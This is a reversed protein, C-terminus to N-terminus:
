KSFIYADNRTRSLAVYQLQRLNEEDRCKDIDSMDIYVNNFTSGQSRHVTIAYGRDFTKKRILRNGVYLNVPSTFKNIISYYDKWLRGKSRGKAQVAKVRINEIYIALKIFDEKPINPDLIQVNAVKKSGTDFLMLNYAPYINDALYICTSKPDELIIYDMANWFKYDNFELNEFCTLIEGKHFVNNDGFIKEAIYNNYKDVRANTYALIKAELIDENKISNIIGEKCKGFFEKFNSIHILSGKKAINTNWKTVVNKRLEQLIPVLASEDSQRYIKTLNFNDKLKYVLSLQDSSVPKLQCKDSVFLIKAAYMACTKLLLKYLDDSIMSAEDCIVLGKYPISDSPVGMNFELEKFDLNLIDLKPSLSLLSHLTTAEEGSYYTLVTKAKHTPACLCYDINNDALWKILESILLSKGSGGPGTLSFAMKNGKMFTEIAELAQLQEEGLQIM